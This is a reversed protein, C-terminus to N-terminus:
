KYILFNVFGELSGGKPLYQCFREELMYENFFYILKEQKEAIDMDPDDLIEYYEAQLEPDDPMYKDMKFELEGYKKYLNKVALDIEKKSKPKLIDEINENVIKMNCIM